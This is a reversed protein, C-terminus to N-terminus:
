RLGYRRLEHTALQRKSVAYAGRAAYQEQGVYHNKRSVYQKLVADWRSDSVFVKCPRGKVLQVELRTEPLFAIRVLYWVGHVRHLQESASLIRRRAALEAHYRRAAERKKRARSVRELNRMLLGTQPDVYLPQRLDALRTPSYGGEHIEGDIVVTRIAVFDQLHIRVHEQVASRVDIVACIESYVDNWRRGAQRVLYRKLPGLHDRSWKARTVSRRMGLKAPADESNLFRRDRGSWRISSWSRSTEVIVKHMDSRM